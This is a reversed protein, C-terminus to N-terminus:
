DDELTEGGTDLLVQGTAASWQFYVPSEHRLVDIVSALQSEALVGRPRELPDLHNFRNKLAAEPHFEIAASFSEEGEQFLYLVARPREEGQANGLVRLRYREVTFFVSM